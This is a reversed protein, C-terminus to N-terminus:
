VASPYPVRESQGYIDRSIAALVRERGGGSLELKWAMLNSPEVSRGEYAPLEVPEGSYEFGLRRYFAVRRSAPQDAGFPAVDVVLPCDAHAQLLAMARRGFGGSRHASSIAFHEVFCFGQLEWWALVGVVKDDQMVASFRYLPHGMVRRQERRSRGEYGSFAEQYIAWAQKFM